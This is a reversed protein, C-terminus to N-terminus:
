ENRLSPEEPNENSPSGRNQFRWPRQAADGITAGRLHPEIGILWDQPEQSSIGGFAGGETM